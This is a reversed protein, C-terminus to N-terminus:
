PSKTRNIRLVGLLLNSLLINLNFHKSELTGSLTVCLNYFSSPPFVNM